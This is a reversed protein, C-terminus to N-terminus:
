GAVLDEWPDPGHVQDLSYYVVVPDGIEMHGFVIRVADYPTNLCGHSGNSIYYTKTYDGASQWSADHIGCEGNFPMWYSSFADPFTTFWWDNKKADIAWVSGSPTSYGKEVCGSIIPTTVLLEGNEYAWMTQESICVEVYRGGIDNEARSNASYFYAPEVTMKNGQYIYQILQAGTTETDMAWGYDGGGELEIPVGYSTMFTRPLGFTDTAYAMEEIWAYVKEEDLLSSGDPQTIMWSRILDKDAKWQRDSFDYIIEASILRNSQEMAAVLDPADKYIQPKYYVGAEELDVDLDLNTLANEVLSIVKAEDAENGEVEPVIFFGNPDEDIYADEPKTINEPQMCDLNKVLYPIDEKNYDFASEVTFERTGNLYYQWLEVDQDEMIKDVSGDDVYKLGLDTGTLEETKGGRERIELKFSDVKQQLLEKVQPVTMQTCDTGNIITGPMFKDQYYSMGYDNIMGSAFHHVGIIGFASAAIIILAVKWNKM